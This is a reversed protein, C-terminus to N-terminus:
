AGLEKRLFMFSAGVGCVHWGEAGERELSEQLQQPTKLTISVLKSAVSKHEFRVPQGDPGCIREFFAFNRGMSCLGWGDAARREVLSKVGRIGRLTISDMDHERTRMPQNRGRKFFAFNSGIGAVAWGESGFHALTAKIQHPLSLTISEMFYAIDAAPAGPSRQLFAYNSGIANMEWGNAAELVLQNKIQLPTYLTISVIKTEIPSGPSVALM